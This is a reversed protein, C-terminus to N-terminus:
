LEDHVTEESGSSFSIQDRFEPFESLIEDEYSLEPDVPPAPKVSIETAAVESVGLSKRLIRDVRLFFRPL